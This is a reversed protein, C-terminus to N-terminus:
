CQALKVQPVDIFPLDKKFDRIDKIFDPANETSDGIPNNADLYTLDFSKLEVETTNDKKSVHGMVQVSLKRFHSKNGSPFHDEVWTKIDGVRIKEIANAESFLRQFKYEMSVIERWNREVEEKLEYDITHKLQVLATRTAALAREGLRRMDRAFKRLFAEVRAEVHQVSFKDVQTNVTVSFGLVGFTYRMMSFVSYGLQEKTRLTDFVPEEMLMMLLELIAVDKPTTVEAQYYNTVISNTSAPNLSLVRLKREGLPLQHVRLEPLETEDLVDWQINRLANESIKIAEHWALNGQVLVQLYMKSLLRRSFDQLDDITLNHVVAAKDRPSIYPDLLVDMRLDKSLKHPKILVNHYNRARVERVAEFMGATLTSGTSRMERTILEVLLHLNQNYGNVKLTLGKDSVYLSHSLDAMYAAYVEEKLDQQLVDTWLDLLCAEKPTKLSLPTIFCFYLLATPFRFKFDPKYWLEMHRNKRLLNPQDLRFNNVTAILDGHKLVKKIKPAANVKKHVDKVSSTMLDVGIENAAELYAPAPAILDFNTTLYINEAPLHFNTYPKVNLWRHLWNNPIDQRKYETGFWKETMDYNVPTAYKNSMVMINVSDAHMCELLERIGQPDYKYYLRDGTIYHEPPFFHMNEALSEVYDSPQSEEEFRFSTEEITKIENYIRESPGIERLMNIYSFIAELVEDVHDLGDKTLVVKTSFLSYMSTYDIGSESNGTYIGLAWVKKRLYSLLSGKGEHGLLYSIYQHPKSEYESLLSRMCWTLTVETTDSVPKVYYLSRFQPTVAAPSFAHPSFDTPPLGNSEVGGFTNVVYQELESLDMRAQVAVTMRHASYHRKRFDHAARHLREDDDLEDKLSRLNGWTFTRAPHGEPFLSALLQDKRNSDSPSAIAFESEIAERERQMAEKMMLPSVFFQSFMDMAQPLYKEQIEFYFTTLECDTSANDSGGKKKIFSDFENEKPYKQSGMFVMHEVFHALGQIDPPDSYSGVGVCLACAALKEEDFENRRHTGHHDSAASHGSKGGDSETNSSEEASSSEEESSSNNEQNVPRSPDSILLATLGNKLRITKYLKKDSASKIPEPLVEVKEKRNVTPVPFGSRNKVVKVEPKFNPTRRYSNRKSMIAILHKTQQHGSTKQILISLFKSM